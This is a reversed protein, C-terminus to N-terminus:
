KCPALPCWCVHNHEVAHPQWMHMNALPQCGGTDLHMPCGCLACSMLLRVGGVEAAHREMHHQVYDKDTGQRSFAVHLTTLAGAAVYGELEERYIYDAERTRCGFFLVAPGLAVGALRHCTDKQTYVHAPKCSHMCTIHM